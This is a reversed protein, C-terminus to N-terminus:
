TAPERRRVELPIWMMVGRAAGGSSEGMSGGFFGIWLMQCYSVLFHPLNVAAFASLKRYGASANSYGCFVALHYYKIVQRHM